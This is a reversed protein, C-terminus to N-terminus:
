KKHSKKFTRNIKRKNGGISISSTNKKETALIDREYDYVIEDITKSAEIPDVREDIFFSSMKSFLEVCRDLARTIAKLEDESYETGNSKTIRSKLHELWVSVNDGPYVYRIFLLLCFGLGFNDFYKSFIPKDKNKYLADIVKLALAEFSEIHQYYFVPSYNNFLYIIYNKFIKTRIINNMTSENITSKYLGLGVLMFEPPNNYFGFPYTMEVDRRHKLWDFDILTMTGTKPNVMINTERIDTHMYDNEYIQRTQHILKQMQSLIIGFDIKRLDKYHEKLHSFSIGLNPMRVVSIETNEEIKPDKKKLHEFIYTPLNRGTYKRTYNYVKHGKNEGMLRTLKPITERLSNLNKKKFFIKTVNNPYSELKDNKLNSLAPKIVLGFAGQGVISHETEM